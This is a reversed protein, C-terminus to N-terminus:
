IFFHHQCAVADADARPIGRSANRNKWYHIVSQMVQDIIFHCYKRYRAGGCEVLFVDPRYPMEMVDPM